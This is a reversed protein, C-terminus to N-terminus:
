SLKMEEVDTPLYAGILAPASVQEIIGAASQRLM